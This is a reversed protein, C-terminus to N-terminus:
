ADYRSRSVALASCLFQALAERITDAESWHPDHLRAKGVHRQVDAKMEETVSALVKDTYRTRPPEARAM